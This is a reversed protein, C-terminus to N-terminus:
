NKLVMKVLCPDGTRKFGFKNYFETLGKVTRYKINEAERPMPVVLLSIEYGKFKEIINNLLMTAIGKGTYSESTIIYNIHIKNSGCYEIGLKGVRVGMIYANVYYYKKTSLTKIEVM